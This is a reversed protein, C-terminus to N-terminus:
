MFRLADELAPDAPRGPAAVADAPRVRLEPDSLDFEVVRDHTWKERNWTFNAFFVVHPPKFKKPRSEYKSSFIIGNKLQEAFTYLHDSHDAAARTVDFIVIRQKDYACAMDAIRGSLQVAGHEFVLHRALRSKGSNGAVDTVWLINRDNPAEKLKELVAKQWERPVFDEDTMEEEEFEELKRKLREFGTSYKVFAAPYHNVLERFGGEKFAACADAIDNRAGQGGSSFDGREWPGAVYTEDDTKMSYKRADERSGHRPEVHPQPWGQDVYYRALGVSTKKKRLEIYAQLHENGSEGCEHQWVAYREDPHQPIVPNLPDFGAPARDLGNFTVCFHYFQASPM